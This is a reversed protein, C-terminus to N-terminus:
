QAFSAQSGILEPTEGRLRTRALLSEGSEDGFCVAFDNCESCSPAACLRFGEDRCIMRYFFKKWKMDQTNRRALSTFHTLMLRSLEGRNALGLDQWLHNSRMARRAVLFSMLSNLPSAETRYRWLLERLCREDEEVVPEIDLGFPELNALTKPFYKEINRRLASGCIGLADTLSGGALSEDVGAAFICALVHGDFPDCNTAANAQRLIQYIAQPTMFHGEPHVTRKLTKEASAHAHAV